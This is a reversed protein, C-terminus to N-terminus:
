ICHYHEKYDIGGKEGVKLIGLWLSMVGTLYLSLEFAFKATEFTSGVMDQFVETDGWFILRILGTIFAIIFFSIWIINLVM